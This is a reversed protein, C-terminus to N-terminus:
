FCIQHLIHLLISASPKFFHWFVDVMFGISTIASITFFKIADCDIELGFENKLFEAQNKFEENKPSDKVILDEWICFRIDEDAEYQDFIYQPTYNKHIGFM